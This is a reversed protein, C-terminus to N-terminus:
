GNYKILIDLASYFYKAITEGKLTRWMKGCSTEDNSSGAFSCKAGYNRLGFAGTFNFRINKNRKEYINSTKARRPASM